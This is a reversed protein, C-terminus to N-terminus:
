CFRRFGSKNGLEGIDDICLVMTLCSHWCEKLIKFLLSDKFLVKPCEDALDPHFPSEEPHFEIKYKPERSSGSSVGSGGGGGGGFISGIHVPFIQEGFVYSFSLAILLLFLSRM